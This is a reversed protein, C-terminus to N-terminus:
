SARRARLEDVRFQGVSDCVWLSFSGGNGERRAWGIFDLFAQRLQEVAVEDPEYKRVWNWVWRELADLDSQRDDTRTDVDFGALSREAVLMTVVRETLTGWHAEPPHSDPPNEVPKIHSVATEGSGFDAQPHLLNRFPKEDTRGDTEDTPAGRARGARAAEEREAKEKARKVKKAEADRASREVLKGQLEPWDHVLYNRQEADIFGINLLATILGGREGRWDCFAEVQDARAKPFCGSPAYLQTWCWLRLVYAIANPDKMAVGLEREKPHGAISSDVRFWTYSM